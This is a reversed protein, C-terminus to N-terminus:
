TIESNKVFASKILEARNDASIATAEKPQYKEDNIGDFTLDITLMYTNDSILSQDTNTIKYSITLHHTAEDYNALLYFNKIGNENPTASVLKYKKDVLDANTSTAITVQPADLRNKTETAITFTGSSVYFKVYNNKNFKDDYAKRGKLTYLINEKQEKTLNALTLLNTKNEEAFKNLAALQEERTPKAPQESEGNDTSPSTPTTTTTGDQGSNSDTSTTPKAAETSDTSPSTPTTTTTGDQVSNSDTSTTPKTAKSSDTTTGKDGGTAPQYEKTPESCAAAMVPLAFAGITGLGLLLLKNKKIKM